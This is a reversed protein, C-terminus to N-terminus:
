QIGAHRAHERRYRGLIRRLLLPYTEPHRALIRLAALRRGEAVAKQADTYYMMQLTRRGRELLMDLMDAVGGSKMAAVYQNHAPLMRRHDYRWAGHGTATWQRSSPSFPLTWNYLTDHCIWVTGGSIFFEMLYYFDEALGALENYRLGTRRIFDTRIVPKLIGLDFGKHPDRAIRVFGGRGVPNVFRYGQFATNVIEGSIHDIHNQDDSVMATGHREGLEILRELRQPHFTDDADLVAVWCGRVLDMARNMARPKGGNREMRVIRARPDSGAVQQALEASGDASGDDVVLLELNRLSQGLVSDIAARLTSESNYVPIIVSVIPTSGDDQRASPVDSANDTVM